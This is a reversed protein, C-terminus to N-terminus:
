FSQYIKSAKHNLLPHGSNQIELSIGLISIVNSLYDSFNTVAVVQLFTQYRHRAPNTFTAAKVIDPHAGQVFVWVPHVMKILIDNISEEEGIM